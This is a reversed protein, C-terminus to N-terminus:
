FARTEDQSPHRTHDVLRVRARRQRATRRQLGPAAAEEFARVDPLRHTVLDVPDAQVSATAWLWRGSFRGTAENGLGASM